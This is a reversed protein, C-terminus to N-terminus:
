QNIPTVKGHEIKAFICFSEGVMNNIKRVCNREQSGLEGTIVEFPFDSEKFNSLRYVGFPQEQDVCMVFLIVWAYNISSGDPSQTNDPANFPMTDQIMSDNDSDM